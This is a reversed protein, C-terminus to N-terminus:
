VGSRGLHDATSFSDLLVNHKFHCRRGSLLDLCVETVFLNARDANKQVTTTSPAGAQGHSQILWVIFVLCKLYVTVLIDDVFRKELLGLGNFHVKVHVPELQVATHIEASASAAAAGLLLVLAAASKPLQFPAFATDARPLYRKKKTGGASRVTLLQNVFEDWFFNSSNM